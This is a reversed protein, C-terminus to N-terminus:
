RGFNMGNKLSVKNVYVKIKNDSVKINYEFIAGSEACDAMQFLEKAVKLDNEDFQTCDYKVDSVTAFWDQVVTKEDEASVAVAIVVLAVIVAVFSSLSSSPM